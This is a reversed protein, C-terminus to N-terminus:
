MNLVTMFRCRLSDKPVNLSNVCTFCTCHQRACPSKGTIAPEEGTELVSCMWLFAATPQRGPGWLVALAKSECLARCLFARSTKNSESGSDAPGPCPGLTQMELRSGPSAPVVHHVAPPSHLSSISVWPVQKRLGHKATEPPQHTLPRRQESQEGSGVRCSSSGLAAMGLSPM